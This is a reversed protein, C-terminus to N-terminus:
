LVKRVATIFEPTTGCCGGIFSAGAAILAPVEAAFQEPTQIYAAQGDRLEPLGRNAKIWVPRGDAAERLRNCIEVFGAVGQGCNSGIVDAGEEIMASAAQEPTTGMMTRDKQPGADFVMCAVVPLGTERAARIALRLEAPDTMTEIVIGDAGADAMARAQENFSAQLEEESVEGMMLVVGSPGFSGFVRARGDAGKRSLEVGLRNIEAARDALGHRRLAVSSGGFTNTLVVQSGADVYARAVAEVDAPRELNWTEPCAGVPLGRAQLETGWAGDTIVPPSTLLRELTAHM